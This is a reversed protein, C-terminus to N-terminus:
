GMRTLKALGERRVVGRQGRRRAVLIDNAVAVQHLPREFLLLGLTALLAAGFALGARLSGLAALGLAPVVRGAAALRLGAVLRLRIALILAAALAVWRLGVVLALAAVLGL